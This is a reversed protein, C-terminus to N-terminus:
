DQSNNFSEEKFIKSYDTMINREMDCFEDTKFVEKNSKSYINDLINKNNKQDEKSSNLDKQKLTIIIHNAKTLNLYEKLEIESSSQM